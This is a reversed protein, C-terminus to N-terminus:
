EEPKVNDSVLSRYEDGDDLVQKMKQKKEHSGKTVSSTNSDAAKRKKPTAPGAQGLNGDLKLLKGSGRDYKYGWKKLQTQFKTGSSKTLIM